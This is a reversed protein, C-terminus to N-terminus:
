MFVRPLFTARSSCVTRYVSYIWNKRLESKFMHVLCMIFPPADCFLVFRYSSLSLVPRSDLRIELTPPSQLSANDKM